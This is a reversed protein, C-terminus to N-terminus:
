RGIELPSKGGNQAVTPLIKGPAIKTNSNTCAPPHNIIGMSSQETMEAAM